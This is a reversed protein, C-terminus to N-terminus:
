EEVGNKLVYEHHKLEVYIILAKLQNIVTNAQRLEAKVKEIENM